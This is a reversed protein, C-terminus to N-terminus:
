GQVWDVTVRVEVTGASAVTVLRVTTQRMVAVTCTVELPVAEAQADPDYVTFAAIVFLVVIVLAKV